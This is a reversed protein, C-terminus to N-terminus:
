HENPQNNNNNENEAMWKEYGGNEWKKWEEDMWKECLIPMERIGWSLAKLTAEDFEKEEIVDLCMRKFDEDTMGYGIDWKNYYDPDYEECILPMLNVLPTEVQEETFNNGCGAKLKDGQWMEAATYVLTRYGLSMGCEKMYAKTLLRLAEMVDMNEGERAYKQFLKETNSWPRLADRVEYFDILEKETGDDNIRKFCLDEYKIKYGKGGDEKRNRKVLQKRYSSLTEKMKKIETDDGYDFEGKSSWRVAMPLFKKEGYSLLADIKNVITENDDVFEDDDICIRNLDLWQLARCRAKIRSNIDFTFRRIWRDGIETTVYEGDEEVALAFRSLAAQPMEGTRIMEPEVDLAKITLKNPSLDMLQFRLINGDFEKEFIDNKKM